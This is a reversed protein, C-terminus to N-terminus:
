SRYKVTGYKETFTNKIKDIIEPDRGANDVGYKKM